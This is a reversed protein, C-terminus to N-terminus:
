DFLDDKAVLSPTEDEDDSTVVGFEVVAKAAADAVRVLWDPHSDGFATLDTEGRIYPRGTGSVGMDPHALEAAGKDFYFYGASSPLIKHAILVQVASWLNDFGRGFRVRVTVERAPPGVKNKVMKVKVDTSEVRTVTDGTFPDKVQKRNQKIQQFEVRMSSYYKLAKGGPTTKAPPGGRSAGMMDIKEMSHNLFIACTRHQSVLPSLKSLSQSMLRARVAVSAKGIEVEDLARPQMEAVSDWIAMRVRGTGILRVAANMGDELFSPQALLFSPHDMDLGLALAYAPDIANEYDLYLIVDDSGTAIIQQQLCAAAQLASTTKGSGPDGYLEVIRGLPYGGVCTAYDIAFNGTTLSETARAIERLNGIPLDYDKSTKKLIDDFDDKTAKAM